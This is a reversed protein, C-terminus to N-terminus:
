GGTSFPLFEERLVEVRASIKRIFVFGKDMESNTLTQTRVTNANEDLRDQAPGRFLTRRQSYAAITELSTVAEASMSKWVALATLLSYSDHRPM